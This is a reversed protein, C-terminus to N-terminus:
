ELEEQLSPVASAGEVRRGKKGKERAHRRDRFDWILLTVGISTCLDPFSKANRPLRFGPYLDSIKKKKQSGKATSPELTQVLADNPLWCIASASQETCGQKRAKKSEQKRAKKAVMIVGLSSPMPGGKGGGEGGIRRRVRAFIIAAAEEIRM